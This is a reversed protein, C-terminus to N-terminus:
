SRAKLDQVALGAAKSALECLQPRSFGGATIAFAQSALTQGKAVGVLVECDSPTGSARYGALAPYGEVSTPTTTVSNKRRKGTLWEQLDAGVVRLHFAHFPETQNADLVCTPGDQPDAAKRPVSTVKLADFQAQGLLQCPDTGAIPLEAPRPPLQSAMAQQSASSVSAQAPYATGEDGSSCGAIGLGAVVAVLPKISATRM